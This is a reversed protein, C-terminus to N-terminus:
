PLHGEKTQNSLFINTRDSQSPGPPPTCSIFVTQSLCVLAAQRWDQLSAWAVQLYPFLNRQMAFPVKYNHNLIKLSSSLGLNDVPSLTIVLTRVLSLPPPSDSISIVACFCLDYHHLQLSQLHLLPWLGLSALPRQSSSLTHCCM